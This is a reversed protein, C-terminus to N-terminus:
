SAHMNSDAFTLNKAMSERRQHNQDKCLMAPEMPLDLKKRAKKM